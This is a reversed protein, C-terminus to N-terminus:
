VEGALVRERDYALLAAADPLLALALGVAVVLATVAPFGAKTAAVAPFGAKPAAVAM